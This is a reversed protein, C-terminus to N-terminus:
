QSKTMLEYVSGVAEDIRWVVRRGNRLRRDCNVLNDILTQIRICCTKNAPASGSLVNM